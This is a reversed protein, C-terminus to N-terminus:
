CATPLAMKLRGCIPAFALWRNVLPVLLAPRGPRAQISTAATLYAIVIDAAALHDHCAQYIAGHDVGDPGEFPACFEQPISWTAAALSPAAAQLAAITAANWQREAATFLPAAFYIRPTRCARVTPM